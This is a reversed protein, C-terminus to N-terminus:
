RITATGVAQALRANTARTLTVSFTENPENAVADACVPVRIQQVKKGTSFNLTGTQAAFDGSHGNTGSTPCTTGALATGPVTAYNVMVPQETAPGSYTVSFVAESQPQLANPESVQVAPTISVTPVAEDDAITIVGTGDGITANVPNALQIEFQQDGESVDDGCIKILVLLTQSQPPILAITTPSLVGRQITEYDAGQGCTGSVASRDVGLFSVTPARETAGLLRLTFSGSTIAGNAGETVRADLVSFVPTPDNDVISGIAQGDQIAIGGRATINVTFQQDAEDHADPCVTVTFSYSATTFTHGFNNISIYDVNGSCNSGATASSPLSAQGSSTSVFLITSGHPQGDTYSVTFTAQAPGNSPETISVDNIVLAPQALAPMATFASVLTLCIQFTKM